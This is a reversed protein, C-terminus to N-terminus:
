KLFKLFMIKVESDKYIGALLLHNKEKSHIFYPQNAIVKDPDAQSGIKRWEYYGEIIIVCRKWNSYYLTVTESRANVVSYNDKNKTGWKIAELIFNEQKESNKTNEEDLPTNNNSKQSPKRKSFNTPLYSGPALNYSQRFRALNRMGSNGARAIAALTASDLAVVVRGCM